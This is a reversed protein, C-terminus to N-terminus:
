LFILFHVSIRHGFLDGSEHAIQQGPTFRDAQGADTRQADLTLRGPPDVAPM